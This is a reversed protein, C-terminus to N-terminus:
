EKGVTEAERQVPALECYKLKERVNDMLAHLPEAMAGKKAVVAAVFSGCDMFLTLTKPTVLRALGMEGLSLQSSIERGKRALIVAGAALREADGPQNTVIVEGKKSAVVYYEVGPANELDTGVSEAVKTKGKETEDIVRMGELLLSEWSTFITRGPLETVETVRFEGGTLGLIRYLAEEGRLDGFSADIIEGKNFYVTAPGKTTGVSLQATNKEVCNLQVLTAINIDKLDGVLAM